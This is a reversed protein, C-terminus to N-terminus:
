IKRSVIFKPFLHKKKIKFSFPLIGEGQWIIDGLAFQRYEELKLSVENYSNSVEAVIFNLFVVCTTIMIIIWMIWFIAMDVENMYEVASILSFDGISIRITAFYNKFFGPLHYYEMMSLKWSNPDNPSMM